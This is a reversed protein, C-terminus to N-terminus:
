RDKFYRFLAQERTAFLGVSVGSLAGTCGWLLVRAGLILVSTPDSGLGTALWCGIAAAGFLVGAVIWVLAEGLVIASLDARHMGAHLASAHQLRRSRVSVYGMAAGVVTATIFAYKTNRSDFRVTGDFEAGLRSNLQSFKPSEKQDESPLVVLTLLHNIQTNMPWVDIWCQDYSGLDPLTPALMAYGLGARRGDDPYNFTGAISVSQDALLLDDDRERSLAESAQASLIVGPEGNWKADIVSVFGSTVEFYPMVTSPLAAISVGEKVERVAGSARVGSLESLTECSGGDIRGNAEVTFVSSGARQFSEAAQEIGRVASLDLLMLGVTSVIFMLSFLGARSTGTVLGRWIEHLISRFRM